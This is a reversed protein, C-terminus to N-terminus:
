FIFISNLPSKLGTVIVHLYRREERVIVTVKLKKNIYYVNWWIYYVNWWLSNKYSGSEVECIKSRANILRIIKKYKNKM